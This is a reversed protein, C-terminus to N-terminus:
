KMEFYKGVSNYHLLNYPPIRDMPSNGTVLECAIGYSWPYAAFSIASHNKYNMKNGWAKGVGVIDFRTFKKTSRDFAVHGLMRVACGRSHAETRSQDTMPKGLQAYGDLRMALMNDRVSVVTLTMQTKTTPLSNVSGEMYDIGITCFFRKQIPLAIDISDGVKADAPALSLKETETLWLMDSQTEVAWAGPNQKYYFQKARNLKGDKGPGVYTCYGRLIVGDKPPDPVVRRAATAANADELKPQRDNAPLAAFETLVASLEKERLRMQKGEGLKKGSATCVALHNGGAGATKCFALEHSNGRFYTDLAM